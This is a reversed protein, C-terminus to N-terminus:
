NELENKKQQKILITDIEHIVGSISSDWPSPADRIRTAVMINTVGEMEPIEVILNGNTDYLRILDPVTQINLTSYKNIFQTSSEDLRLTEYDGGQNSGDTWIRSGRVFHYKILSQLEQQTLTDTNLSALAEQTPIFVTYFEGESLFPFNDYIADYMGAEKILDFFHPYMLIMSYMTTRPHNFWGKVSYVQGNDTPEELPEPHIDFILSDTEYGYTNPLGGSVMNNVNDVVLFNGALNEIFEKNAMGKPLSSGVQNLIMKTLQPRNIKSGVSDILNYASFKVTNNEESVEVILSQDELFSEDSQVYFAYENGEEKLASLTKSEELAYRIMSYGPRLYVPGTISSFSRPIIAKKLGIFSCNSGYFKHVIDSEKISIIDDAGNYFGKEIDTRYVPINTMHANLIIRKIALPISEFDQWHPYGSKATIVEDILKEIAEDTPALFCNQYLLTYKSDRINGTLEQNLDFVLDPYTLDYLLDFQGGALAEPQSNTALINVSFESFYSSIEKIKQFSYGPYDQELLQEANYLPNMVRDVEYVIGNEAFIEQSIIKSNGYYLSGIEFNRDYYFEYDEVNLDNIEFYDEFFLPAYKGSATFVKKYENSQTSDVIREIGKEKITYYKKNPDKGLTKRKYGRPKSNEPDNKDIWGDIDLSQLQVLTWGNRLIHRVVIRELEPGPINEPAGGYDPHEAFWQEFAQNTPAFITYTGSVDLITDYGTLKICEAFVSLDERSSLQTYVKGVLWDPRQYKEQDHINDCGILFTFGALLILIKNIGGIM